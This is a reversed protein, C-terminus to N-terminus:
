HHDRQGIAKAGEPKRGELLEHSQSPLALTLAELFASEKWKAVQLSRKELVTDSSIASFDTNSCFGRWSIGAWVKNRSGISSNSDFFSPDIKSRLKSSASIVRIRTLTDLLNPAELWRRVTCHGHRQLPGLDGAWKAASYEVWGSMANTIIFTHGEFLDEFIDLFM